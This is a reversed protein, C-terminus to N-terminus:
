LLHAVAGTEDGEGAKLYNAGGEVLQMMSLLHVLTGLGRGRLAPALHIMGTEGITRGSEKEFKIGVAFYGIEIEDKVLLFRHGRKESTLFGANYPYSGGGTDRSTIRFVDEFTGKQLTLGLRSLLWEARRSFEAPTWIEIQSRLTEITSM